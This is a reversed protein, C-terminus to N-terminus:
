DGGGPPQALLRAMPSWSLRPRSAGIIVVAEARLELGSPDVDRACCADRRGQDGLAIPSPEVFM